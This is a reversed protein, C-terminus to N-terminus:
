YVELAKRLYVDINDQNLLWAKYDRPIDTIAVGKHKGFTMHSPIRAQESVTWLEEISTVNLRSIIKELIFACNEVDALASHANKLKDRANQRDVFYLLASQTHSDLTPWVKRSLALTCIRKINPQGIINWDYDINHGILYGLEQPLEFSEPSPCDNLEEDLIHHTALAGLEISKGPNYRKNFSSSTAFPNICDLQIWAAEIMKAENKGTTETDFIITKLM